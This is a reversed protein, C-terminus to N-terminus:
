LTFEAKYGVEKEMWILNANFLDSIEPSYKESVILDGRSIDTERDFTITVAQGRKAKLLNKKYM